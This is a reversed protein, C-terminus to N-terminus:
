INQQETNKYERDNIFLVTLNVLLIFLYTDNINNVRETTIYKQLQQRGRSSM